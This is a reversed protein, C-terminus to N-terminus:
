GATSNFPPNYMPRVTALSTEWMDRMKAQVEAVSESQAAEYAKKLLELSNRSNQDLVKLCEQANQQLTPVANDVFEQAKKQMCTISGADGIAELWWKATEEQVKLGTRMAGAFSEMAQSMLDTAMKETAAAM